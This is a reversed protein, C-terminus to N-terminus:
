NGLVNIIVQIDIVAFKVQQTSDLKKALDLINDGIKEWYQQSADKPDQPGESGIAEGKHQLLDLQPSFKTIVDWVREDSVGVM